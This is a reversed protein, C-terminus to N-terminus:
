CRIAEKLINSMTCRHNLVEERSLSKYWNPTWSNHLMIMDTERFDSLKFSNNFYLEIYRSMRNTRGGMFAYTELWRYTINGISIDPHNKLYDDTFANGMIDWSTTDREMEPLSKLKEDQYEAWEEFMDSHAKTHLFGITNSRDPYGLITESTLTESFVITDADLWYGGNDRLVHVRVYDAIKPLTLQKVKDNFETYERINEYNLITYPFKWTELCLKIYEPMDGEWFTFVNENNM